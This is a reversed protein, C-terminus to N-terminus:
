RAGSGIDRESRRTRSFTLLGRTWYSRPFTESREGSQDIQVNGWGRVALTAQWLGIGSGSAQTSVANRGRFGPTGIRLLEDKEIGPGYSAVVAVISQGKDEFSIRVPSKDPAYKIANDMLALAPVMSRESPVYCREWCEGMEFYINREGAIGRYMHILKNFLQHPSKWEWDEEIGISSESLLKAAKQRESLLECTLLIAKEKNWLRRQASSDLSRSGPFTAALAQETSGYRATLVYDANQYITALLQLQDHILGQSLGAVSQRVEAIAWDEFRRKALEIRLQQLDSTRLSAGESDISRRLASVLRLTEDVHAASSRFQARNRKFLKRIRRDVSPPARWGDLLVGRVLISPGVRVYNAGERCLRIGDDSKERDRECEHHTCARCFPVQESALGNREIGNLLLPLPFLGRTLAEEAM